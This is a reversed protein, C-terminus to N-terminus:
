HPLNDEQLKKISYNKFIIYSDQIREKKEVDKIEGIQVSKEEPNLEKDKKIKKIAYRYRDRYL